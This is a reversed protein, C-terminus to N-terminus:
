EVAMGFFEAHHSLLGPHYIRSVGNRKAALHHFKGRQPNSLKTQPGIYKENECPCISHFGTTSGLERGSGPSIHLGYCSVYYGGKITPDRENLSLGVVISGTTATRTFTRM